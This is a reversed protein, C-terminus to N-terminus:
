LSRRVPAVGFMCNAWGELPTQWAMCWLRMEAEAWSYRGTPLRHFPPVYVGEARLTEPGKSWLNAGDRIADIQVYGTGRLTQGDEVYDRQVVVQLDIMVCRVIPYLEGKM